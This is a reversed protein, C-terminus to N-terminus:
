MNRFLHMFPQSVSLTEPRAKLRIIGKGTEDRAVSQIARLNVITARHIQKFQTPDLQESLAKISTRIWAEGDATMVGTYKSDSQFYAVDDVLILRTEKGTGATIWALPERRSEEAMGARLRAVLDALADGQLGGDARASAHHAQLREVTAALRDPQFPKLLYDIAGREFADVAYQQYATVFVVRTRPACDRLAAAVDLGSLGPMRIDLFAFDPQHTALEELAEAGDQAQAVIRAQPWVRQLQRALAERQLDEDEAILVTPSNQM